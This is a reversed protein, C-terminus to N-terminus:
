FPRGPVPIAGLTRNQIANTLLAAALAAQSAADIAAQPIRNRQQTPRMKFAEIGTPRFVLEWSVDDERDPTERFRILVGPRDWAQGWVLRVPIGMAVMRNVIQVRNRTNGADDGQDDWRGTFTMDEFEPGLIQTIPERAGPPFETEVRQLIGASVGQSPLRAGTLIVVSDLEIADDPFEQSITLAATEM